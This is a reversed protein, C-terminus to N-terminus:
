AISGAKHKNLAADFSFACQQIWGFCKFAQLCGRRLVTCSLHWPSLQFQVPISASHHHSLTTGWVFRVRCGVERIMSEGVEFPISGVYVRGLLQVAKLRSAREQQEMLRSAVTEPSPKNKQEEAFRQSATLM